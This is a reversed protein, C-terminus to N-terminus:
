AAESSLRPLPYPVLGLKQRQAIATDVYWQIAGAREKALVKSKPLRVGFLRDDSAWELCEQLVKVISERRGYKGRTDDYLLWPDVTPCNHDQAGRVVVDLGLCIIRDADKLAVTTPSDKDNNPKSHELVAEVIHWKEEESFPEVALWERILREIAAPEAKKVKGDTREELMRDANHCLGAAGALRSTEPEEAVEVAVLAVQLAHDFDHHVIDAAYKEHALRTVLVLRPFQEWIRM